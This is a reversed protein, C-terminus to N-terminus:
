ALLRGVPRTADGGVRSAHISVGQAAQCRPALPTAEWAPPTSHFLDAHGIGNFYHVDGGVRSAHISVEIGLRTVHLIPDGGVRSADISVFGPAEDMVM